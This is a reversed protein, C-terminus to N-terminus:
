FGEKGAFVETAPQQSLLADAQQVRTNFLQWDQMIMQLDEIPLDIIMTTIKPARDGAVERVYDLLLTGV